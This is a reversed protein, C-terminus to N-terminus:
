DGFFRWNGAHAMADALSGQLLQDAITDPLNATRHIM